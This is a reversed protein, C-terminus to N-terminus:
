LRSDRYAIRGLSVDRNIYASVPIEYLGYDKAMDKTISSSLSIYKTDLDQVSNGISSIQKEIKQLTITRSITLYLNIGYVFLSIVCAGIFMYSLYTYYEHNTSYTRIKIM